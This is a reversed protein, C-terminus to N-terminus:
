SPSKMMSYTLLYTLIYIYIYIYIYRRMITRLKALILIGFVDGAHLNVCCVSDTVLVVSAIFYKYMFLAVLCVVKVSVGLTLQNM